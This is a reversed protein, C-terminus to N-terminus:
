SQAPKRPACSRIASIRPANTGQANDVLEQEEGDRHHLLEERTDAEIRCPRSVTGSSQVNYKSRRASNTVQM